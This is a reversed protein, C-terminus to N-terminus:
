VFEGDEDEQRYIETRLYLEWRVDVMDWLAYVRVHTQDDDVEWSEGAQGFDEKGM